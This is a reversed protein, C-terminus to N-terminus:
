HPKKLQLFLVTGVFVILRIGYLLVDTISDRVLIRIILLVLSVLLAIPFQRKKICRYLVAGFFMYLLCGLVFCIREFTSTSFIDKAYLFSLLACVLLCIFFCAACLLSPKIRNKM